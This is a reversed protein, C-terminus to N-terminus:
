CWCWYLQKSPLCTRRRPSAYCLSTRLKRNSTVNVTEAHTQSGWSPKNHDSVQVQSRGFASCINADYNSRCPCTCVTVTSTVTIPWATHYTVVPCLMAQKMGECCSLANGAEHGWCLVSCQRSWARVVPCLMAQKMGECCLLSCQRSWARLLPCPM